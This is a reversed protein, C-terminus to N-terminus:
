SETKGFVLLAANTPLAALSLCVILCRIARSSKPENDTAHMAPKAYSAARRQTRDVDRRDVTTSVGARGLDGCAWSPHSPTRDLYHRRAVGRSTRRRNVAGESMLWGASTYQSVQRLFRGFYAPAQTRYRQELAWGRVEGM